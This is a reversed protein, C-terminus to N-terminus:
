EGNLIFNKLDLKINDILKNTENTEYHKSFTISEESSIVGCLLKVYFLLEKNKVLKLNNNKIISKEWNPTLANLKICYFDDIVLDISFKNEKNMNIYKNLATNIEVDEDLDKIMKEYFKLRCKYINIFDQFKPILDILYTENYKYNPNDLYVYKSFLELLDAQKVDDLFINNIDDSSYFKEVKNQM